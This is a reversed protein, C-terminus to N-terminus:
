NVIDSLLLVMEGPDPFRGQEDKSFIVTGDLGVAFVGGSSPVMTVAGVAGKYTRLIEDAVRTARELFGCDTCYEVSIVPKQRDM